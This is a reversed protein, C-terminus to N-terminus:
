AAHEGTAFREFIQRDLAHELAEEGTIVQRRVLDQLVNDLSQMGVRQGSQIAASLKHAGGQRIMASVASTNLLVECVAIRGSHDARRVLTQSIVMRLADAFRYLAVFDALWARVLHRRPSRTRRSSGTATRSFWCTFAPSRIPAM